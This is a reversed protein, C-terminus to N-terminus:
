KSSESIKKFYESTKKALEAESLEPNEALFRAKKLAFAAKFMENATELSTQRHLSPKKKDDM